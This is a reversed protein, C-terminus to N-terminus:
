RQRRVPHFAAFHRGDSPAGDLESSDNSIHDLHLINVRLTRGGQSKKAGKSSSKQPMFTFTGPKTNLARFQCRCFSYQSYAQLSCPSLSFPIYMIDDRTSEMWDIVGMQPTLKRAQRMSKPIDTRPGQPRSLTHNLRLLSVATLTLVGFAVGFFTPDTSVYQANSMFEDLDLMVELVDEAGQKALVQLLETAVMDGLAPAQSKNKGTSPPSKTLPYKKQLLIDGSDFKNATVRIVSTGTEADGNLLCRPVPAAGRYRPLLSPHLNIAGHPLQKLVDEPIMYGFSVVVGIDFDGATEPIWQSDTNGDRQQPPHAVALNHDLCYQKIPVPQLIRKRGKKVDPPCIVLISDASFGRGSADTVGTLAAHHLKQLTPLSVEDTGFFLVRWPDQHASTAMRLVSGASRPVVIRHNALREVGWRSARLSFKASLLRHAMRQCFFIRWINDVDVALSAVIEAPNPVRSSIYECDSVQSRHLSYKTILVAVAV